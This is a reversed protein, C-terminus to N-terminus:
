WSFSDSTHLDVASIAKPVSKMKVGGSVRAIPSDIVVPEETYDM